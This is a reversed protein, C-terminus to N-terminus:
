REFLAPGRLLAFLMNAQRSAADFKEEEEEEEDEEQEMMNNVRTLLQPWAALPIDDQMARRGALNLDLYHQVMPDVAVPAENEEDDEEPTMAGFSTLTRNHQLGDVLAQQAEPSYVDNGSIDLTKLSTSLEPLKHALLQIGAQSIKSDNIRLTELTTNQSLATTLLQVAADSFCNGSVDLVKLTPSCSSGAVVAIAKALAIEDLVDHEPHVLIQTSLNLTEICNNNSNSTNSMLEAIANMALTNSSNHSLNLHKLATHNTIGTIIKSLCEDQLMCEELQLSELTTNTQMATSLSQVAELALHSRSLDLDRLTTNSELWEFFHPDKEEIEDDTHEELVFPVGLLKLKRLTTNTKMNDNIVQLSPLDTHNGSVVLAEVKECSLVAKLVDSVMGSCSILKITKWRRFYHTDRDFLRNVADVTVQNFEIGCLYLENVSSDKRAELLKLGVTKNDVKNENPINNEAAAVVNNSRLNGIRITKIMTTPNVLTISPRRCRPSKLSFQSPSPPPSLLSSRRRAFFRENQHVAINEESRPM